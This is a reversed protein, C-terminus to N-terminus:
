MTAVDLKSVWKRLDVRFVILLTILVALKLFVIGQVFLDTQMGYLMMRADPGFIAVVGFLLFMPAVYVRNRGLAVSLLVLLAFPIIWYLHLLSYSATGPHGFEELFNFYILLLGALGAGGILRTRGIGGILVWLFFVVMMVGLLAGRDEAAGNAWLSYYGDVAVLFAGAGLWGLRALPNKRGQRRALFYPLISVITLIAIQMPAPFWTFNFVVVLCVLLVALGVLVRNLSHSLRGSVFGQESETQESSFSEGEGYLNMLFDCYEAPLLKSTRWHKIEQLIVRKQEQNM